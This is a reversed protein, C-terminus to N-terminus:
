INIGFAAGNSYGIIIRYLSASLNQYIEGNMIMEWGTIIIASPAPLFLPSVFNLQTILEWLVLFGFIGLFSAYVPIKKDLFAVRNKIIQQNNQKGM